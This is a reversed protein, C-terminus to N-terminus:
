GGQPASGVVRYYGRGAVAADPPNKGLRPYIGMGRDLNGTAQIRTERSNSTAARM